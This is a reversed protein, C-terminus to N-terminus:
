RLKLYYIPWVYPDGEVADLILPSVHVECPVAAVHLRHCLLCLKREKCTKCNPRKRKPQQGRKSIFKIKLKLARRYICSQSVGLAEAAESSSMEAHSCATIQEDTIKKYAM